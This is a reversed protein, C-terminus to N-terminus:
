VYEPAAGFCHFTHLWEWTAPETGVSQHQPLLAWLDEWVPLGDGDVIREPVFSSSVFM